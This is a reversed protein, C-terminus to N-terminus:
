KEGEANKELDNIMKQPSEYFEQYHLCCIKLPNKVDRKCTYAGELLNIKMDYRRIANM